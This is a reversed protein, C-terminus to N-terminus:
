GGTFGTVIQSTGTLRVLSTSVAQDDINVTSLDTGKATALTGSVNAQQSFTNNGTFTQNVNTFAFHSSASVDSDQISANLNLKSYAIGATNSIDSNTVSGSLNLKSYSIAATNSIDINAITGDAIKVSTVAGTGITAVGSHDVTIDGSFSHNEWNGSTSNYVLYNTDALSSISLATGKLKDVSTANYAGSVDGSFATTQLVVGTGGQQLTTANLTGAVSVTTGNDTLISDGITFGSGTFKALKNVTGSGGIAGGSVGVCNGASTCINYTGAAASVDFDYTV